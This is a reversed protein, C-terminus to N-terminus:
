LEEDPEGGGTEAAIRDIELREARLYSPVLGKVFELPLGSAALVLAGLLVVPSVEYETEISLRHVLNDLDAHAFKALYVHEAPARRPRPM